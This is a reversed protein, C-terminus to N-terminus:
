KRRRRVALVGGALALLATVAIGLGEWPTSEGGSSSFGGVVAVVDM